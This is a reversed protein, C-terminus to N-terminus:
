VSQYQATLMNKAWEEYFTSFFHVGDSAYIPATGGASLASNDVYTWGNRECMEKIQRNFDEVKNWNPNKALAEPTPEIISNVFIKSNPSKELLAKINREYVTQYGNEGENAGINLGMDNVGYSLYIVGPQQAAITDEFEPINNITYGAAALVQNEPLFGYSMFGYVRSDGMLITNKFLSWMSMIDDPNSIRTMADARNREDVKSSIETFDINEQTSLYELGPQLLKQYTLNRYYWLGGVSSIGVILLLILLTRLRHKPKSKRKSSKPSVVKSKTSTSVQKRSRSA